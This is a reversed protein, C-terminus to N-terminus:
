KRAVISFDPVFYKLFSVPLFRLIWRIISVVRRLIPPSFLFNDYLINSFWYTFINFPELPVLYKFNLYGPVPTYFDLKKFGIHKLFRRYGGLSYICTRYECKKVIKSYINALFFPLLTGFRLGSHPDKKGFFYFYALRNEIGIYLSGGPKLVRYIEKLMREQVKQPRQSMDSLGIWELIGNVIVLDFFDDPFPLDLASASLPYLNDQKEQRKRIEIFKVREWVPELAFVKKSNKAFTFAHAGWGSGIDLINGTIDSNIAYKWNSRKDDRMFSKIKDSLLCDSAERWGKNEAEKLFIAAEEKTIDHWYPVEEKLFFPVKDKIPWNRKCGQCTFSEDQKLLQSKCLPCVFIDNDMM